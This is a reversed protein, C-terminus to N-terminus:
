ILGNYKRFFWELSLTSAIVGLLIRFDILSVVKKTSSQVPLYREDVTIADILADIQDSYFLKGGSREALQGLKADNTSIFQQEVDFDLIRFSGSKSLNKNKVSVSFQYQGASRDSLDAEYFGNKLLMPIENSAGTDNNKLQLVLNANSDFAFTEDFYSANVLAESNGEYVSNFDLTLRENSKNDSLYIMLKGMLEDFDQFSKNNRYAQTRWKWINEGLLLVSKNEEGILVSLLPSRMDVGKIRMKLLTEHEGDIEIPGVDSDLPPYDEFSNESIDFKSFGDNKIPVVEQLPYNDEIRFQKQIGNIFSLDSHPGIISFSNANKREIYEYISKFSSNPQYLIFVDVDELDSENPKIISVSRQENSEISKKLAGIDPHRIESVIAVNTKEDIVEVTLSKKNNTTNRENELNSVTVELYKIGVSGADLLTNIVKSNNSNSLKINESYAGRGDLSITVSESIASSGEYSIFIEIPYKNKLFAYKNANVQEIRIDEYKTTDGIAIPYVPLKSGGSGYVYDNGFTQNGDTLLVIVSNKPYIEKLTNLAKSLNTTKESFSLSDSTGLESGFSYPNLKFKSSIDASSKLKELASEVDSGYKSISSSNDSLLLLNTKEVTYEDKSFKPNILLLFAAFWTIFRLFSLLIGLRGKKKSKYYYQFLVLGLAVIAALIILFVTQTDM